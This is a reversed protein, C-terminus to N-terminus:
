SKSFHKKQRYILFRRFFMADPPNKIFVCQKVKQGPYLFYGEINYFPSVYSTNYKPTYERKVYLAPINKMLSSVICVHSCCKDDVHKLWKDPPM